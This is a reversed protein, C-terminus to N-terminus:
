MLNHLLTNYAKFTQTCSLLVYPAIYPAVLPRYHYDYTILNANSIERKNQHCLSQQHIKPLDQKEIAAFSLM